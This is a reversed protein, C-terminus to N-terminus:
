FEFMLRTKKNVNVCSSSQEVQYAPFIISFLSLIAETETALKSRWYELLLTRSLFYKAQNEGLFRVALCLGSTLIWWLVFYSLWIAFWGKNKPSSCCEAPSFTVFLSFKSIVNSCISNQCSNKVKIRTINHDASNCFKPCIDMERM